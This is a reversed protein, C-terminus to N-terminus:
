ELNVSYFGYIKCLLSNQNAETIHNYYSTIIKKLTKKEHGKITKIIFRKNKSFFMFSGSKGMSEKAKNIAKKNNELNFSNWLDM